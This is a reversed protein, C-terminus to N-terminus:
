PAANHSIGEWKGRTFTSSTTEWPSSLEVAWEHASGPGPRAPCGHGGDLPVAQGQISQHLQPSPELRPSIGERPGPAKTDWRCRDGERTGAVGFSQRVTIMDSQVLLGEPIREVAQLIFHLTRVSLKSARQPKIRIVTGTELGWAHTVGPGLLCGHGAKAGVM